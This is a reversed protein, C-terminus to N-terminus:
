VVSMGTALHPRILARVHSKFKQKVGLAMAIVQMLWLLSCSDMSWDLDVPVAVPSKSQGMRLLHSKQIFPGMCIHWVHNGNPLVADSPNVMEHSYRKRM